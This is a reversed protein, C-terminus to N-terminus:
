RATVIVTRVQKMLADTVVTVNEYVHVLSGPKNGTAKSGYRVANEVVSPPVGRSVVETGSQILGRPAM